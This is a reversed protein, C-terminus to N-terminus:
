TTLKYGIEMGNIESSTFASSTSPSASYAQNFYAYSSGVNQNNGVYDTGGIRLVPSLGRTTADDRRANWWVMAGLVNTTGSPCDSIVFTDIQNLTSSANYDTDGNPTTDDVNQYNSGTSPTFQSYNGAGTVTHLNVNVPGILDNMTSGSTDMLIIHDYRLTVAPFSTYGEISIGNISTTSSTNQSSLNIETNGNYKVLISGTSSNFTIKAEVDHYTTGADVALTSIGTGLLAGNPNGRYVQLKGLSSIALSSVITGNNLFNMLPALSNASINVRINIIITSIASFTYTTLNSSSGNGTVLKGSSISHGTSTSFTGPLSTYMELNDVYILAM